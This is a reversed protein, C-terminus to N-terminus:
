LSKGLEEKLIKSIRDGSAKGKLHPMIAKMVKGFDKESTAGTERIGSQIIRTVEDDPLEPPLYSQLVQLEATEQTALEKRGAKEYELISDKRKRAESGIVELIEEDSLGIDKKRLDIEKNSIAASLMRLTSLRSKDGAKMAEKQDSQLKEKLM